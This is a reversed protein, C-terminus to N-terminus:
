LSSLNDYWYLSATSLDALGHGNETPVSYNWLLTKSAFPYHIWIFEATHSSCTASCTLFHQEWSLLSHLSHSNGSVSCQTTLIIVEDFDDACAAPVTRESGFSATLSGEQHLFTCYLFVASRPLQQRSRSLLIAYVFSSCTVIMWLYEAPSIQLWCQIYVSLSPSSRNGGLTTGVVRSMRSHETNPAITILSLGYAFIQLHCCPDAIHIYAWQELRLPWIASIPCTRHKVCSLCSFNLLPLRCQRQWLSWVVCRSKQLAVQWM